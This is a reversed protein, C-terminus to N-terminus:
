KLSRPRNNTEFSELSKKSTEASPQSQKNPTAPFTLDSKAARMGAGQGQTGAKRLALCGAGDERVNTDVRLRPPTVTNKHVTFEGGPGFVALTNTKRGARTRWTNPVCRQRQDTKCLSVLGRVM